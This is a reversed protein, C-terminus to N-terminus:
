IESGSGGKIGIDSWICGFSGGVTLGGWGEVDIPIGGTYPESM